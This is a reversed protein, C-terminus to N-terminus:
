WYHSRSEQRLQKQLYEKMWSNMWCKENQRNLKNKFRNHLLKIEKLNDTSIDAWIDFYITDFKEDKEPVYDFVDTCIIKLKPHTFKDSVLDIVDQYKEIVIVETVEEKDLINALIMGVGLGAVLVKGNASEIFERNSYREMATDSMMLQGNVSLRVFTGEKMRFWWEGSDRMLRLNTLLDNKEEFVVKSIKAVGKEIKEPFLHEVGKVGYIVNDKTEM